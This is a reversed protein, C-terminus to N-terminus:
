GMYVSNASFGGFVPISLFCFNGPVRHVDKPFQPCVSLCWEDMCFFLSFLHHSSSFSLLPPTITQTITSFLVFEDIFFLAAFPTQQHSKLSSLSSISIFISSNISVFM